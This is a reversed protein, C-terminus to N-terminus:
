QLAQITLLSYNQSRIVSGYDIVVEAPTSISGHDETDVAAAVPSVSTTSSSM